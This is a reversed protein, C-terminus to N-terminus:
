AAPLVHLFALRTERVSPSPTPCDTCAPAALLNSILPNQMIAATAAAAAVHLSLSTVPPTLPQFHLFVSSCTLRLYLYTFLLRFRAGIM